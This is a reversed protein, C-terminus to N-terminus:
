HHAFIDDDPLLGRLDMAVRTHLFRLAEGMVATLGNAALEGTMKTFIAHLHLVDSAAYAIQSGTLEPAAWNSIQESKDLEVGCYDRVLTRLNHKATKPRVLKSGIKTCFVPGVMPIGLARQLVAMDFRAYHFLKLTDQDALVRRLNPAAYDQDLKVLWANGQGDGVQVLCLKDNRVDLGTTETDVAIVPPLVLGDPLDNHVLTTAM